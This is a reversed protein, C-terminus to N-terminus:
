AIEFFSALNAARHAFDMLSASSITTSSVPESSSVTFIRVSAPTCTSLATISGHRNSEALFSDSLSTGGSVSTHTQVSM